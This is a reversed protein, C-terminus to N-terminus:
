TNKVRAIAQCDILYSSINRAWAGKCRHSKELPEETHILSVKKWHHHKLRPIM